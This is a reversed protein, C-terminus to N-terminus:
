WVSRIAGNRLSTPPGVCAVLVGIAQEALVEQSAGVQAPEILCREIRDGGLEVASRSVRPKLVGECASASTNGQGM